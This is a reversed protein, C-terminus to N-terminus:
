NQSVIQGKVHGDADIEFIPGLGLERVRDEIETRDGVVVWVLRGPRLLERAAREVDSLSVARVRDAYTDFHDVDLGYQVIEGISAAVEGNTEWSGPLTLTMSAKARELEDATVPRDSVIGQLEGLVEQLSEATRDTQVPALVIFPRQGRADLILSQAGYSWHKDERLNMNIRATFDGGLVRNMTEIAIEDDNAKPPAIHGAFIVSQQADPRDLLYVASSPKHDVRALNKDPAMGPRWSAFREELMPTIEELTTAGVVVLTANNPLFWREHYAVVDDRTMGSVSEETGSGTLPNGYAHGEGYLLGSFVRLAMGFPQVKEQQIQALRQQKLRQFDQEPFAPNQVVDAFIDLSPGLNESLATLSVTSFDLNSGTGLSAGLM